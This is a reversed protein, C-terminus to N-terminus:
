NMGVSKRLKYHGSNKVKIRLSFKLINEFPQVERLTKREDLVEEM